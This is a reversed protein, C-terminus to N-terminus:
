SHNESLLATLEVSKKPMGPNKCGTPINRVQFLLIRSCRTLTTMASAKLNDTLNTTKRQKSSDKEIGTGMKKGLTMSKILTPCIITKFKATTTTISQLNRGM